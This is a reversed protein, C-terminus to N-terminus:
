GPRRIFAVDMARELPAGAGARAPDTTLPRTTLYRTHLNGRDDRCARWPLLAANMEAWSPKPHVIRTGPCRVEGVM